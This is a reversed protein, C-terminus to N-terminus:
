PVVLAKLYKDKKNKMLQTYLFSANTTIKCYGYMLAPLPERRVPARDPTVSTSWVDSCRTTWTWGPSSQTHQCCLLTPPCWRWAPARGLEADPTAIHRTRCDVSSPVGLSWPRFPAWWANMNTALCQFPTAMHVCDRSAHWFAFTMTCLYISSSLTGADVLRNLWIWTSRTQWNLAAHSTFLVKNSTISLNVPQGSANENVIRPSAVCTFNHPCTSTRWYIALHPTGSMM